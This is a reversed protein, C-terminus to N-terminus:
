SYEILTKIKLSIQYLLKEAKNLLVVQILYSLEDLLTIVM